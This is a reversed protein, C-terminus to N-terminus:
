GTKVLDLYFVQATDTVGFCDVTPPLTSYFKGFVGMRGYRFWWADEDAIANVAPVGPAWQYGPIRLRAAVLNTGEARFGVVTYEGAPLVEGFTIATNAWTGAALAAAGVGRVTYMPGTVPQQAMDSLWVLGQHVVAGNDSLVYLELNEDPKVPVPNLPHMVSEPPSGLVLAAVKPAISLNVITRLSPSRLEAQAFTADNGMALEGIINALEKPVRVNDGNITMLPDPVAAIPVMAGAPDLSEYWAATHWM